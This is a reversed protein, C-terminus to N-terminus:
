EEAREAKVTLLAAWAQNLQDALAKLGDDKPAETADMASRIDDQSQATALAARIAEQQNHPIIRTVFEVEASGTKKFALEAKKRREETLQKELAGKEELEEALKTDVRALHAKLEKILADCTAYAARIADFDSQLGAIQADRASITDDRSKIIDTADKLRKKLDEIEADKSVIVQM